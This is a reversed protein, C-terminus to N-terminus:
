WLSSIELLQALNSLSSVCAQKVAQSEDNIHLILSIISFHLNDVISRINSDQKEVLNAIKGLLNFAGM